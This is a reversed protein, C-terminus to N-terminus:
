LRHLEIACTETCRVAFDAALQVIRPVPCQVVIASGKRTQLHAFVALDEEDILGAEDFADDSVDRLVARQQAQDDGDSQRSLYEQPLLPGALEIVTFHPPALVAQDAHVEHINTLPGFFWSTSGANRGIRRAPYRVQDM